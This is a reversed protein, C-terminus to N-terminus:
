TVIARILDKRIPLITQCTYLTFNFKIKASLVSWSFCSFKMVMFIELGITYM